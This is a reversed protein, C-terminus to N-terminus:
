SNNSIEENQHEKYEMPTFKDCNSIISINSESPLKKSCRVDCSHAYVCIYLQKVTVLSDKTKMLDKYGCCKCRVTLGGKDFLGAIATREGHFLGCKPCIFEKSFELM